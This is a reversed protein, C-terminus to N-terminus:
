GGLDIDFYEFLGLKQALLEIVGVIVYLSYLAIAGYFFLVVAPIALITIGISGLDISVESNTAAFLTTGGIATAVLSWFVDKAGDSLFKKM